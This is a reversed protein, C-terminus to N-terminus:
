AAEGTPLLGQPRLLLVAAMLVFPIVTQFAPLYLFAFSNVLGLLIAALLAGPFSGLGGIVVVIFSEIIINAGMDPSIARFPAAIGGALGALGCGFV